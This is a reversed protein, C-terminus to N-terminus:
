LDNVTEGEEVLNATQKKARLAKTPADIQLEGRLVKEAADRLKTQMVKQNALTHSATLLEYVYQEPTIAVNKNDVLVKFGKKGVRGDPFTFVDVQDYAVLDDMWKAINAVLEDRNASARPFPLNREGTFRWVEEDRTEGTLQGQEDAVKFTKTTRLSERPVKVTTGDVNDINLTGVHSTIKGYAGKELQFGNDSGNEHRKAM